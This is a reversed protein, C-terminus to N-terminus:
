IRDLLRFWQVAYVCVCVPLLTAVICMGVLVCLPLSYPFCNSCWVAARTLLQLFSYLFCHKTFIHMDLCIVPYM